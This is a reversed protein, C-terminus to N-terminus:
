HYDWVKINKALHVVLRLNGLVPDKSTKYDGIQKYFTNDM